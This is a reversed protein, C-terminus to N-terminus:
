RNRFIINACTDFCIQYGTGTGSSATFSPCECLAIGISIRLYMRSALYPGSLVMFVIGIADCLVVLM